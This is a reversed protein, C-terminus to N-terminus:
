AFLFDPPDIGNIAIYKALDTAACVYENGACTIKYVFNASEANRLKAGTGSWRWHKEYLSASIECKFFTGTHSPDIDRWFDDPM